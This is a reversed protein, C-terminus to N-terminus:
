FDVALSGTLRRAHNVQFAGSGSVRWAFENTLNELRLRLQAPARGIRFRYRGGLDLLTHAPVELRNDRSAVRDGDYAVALDLSLGDLFSPRYEVTSRLTTATTGVPRPGVRGLEVAEGSVRARLLVAGAVVNLREGISGAVSLEAGSHRVQGLQGFVNDADLNYYPKRVDFLGALLKLDPTLAYRIGADRQSTRAAPLAEGRNVANDPAVGTEELGRTYGGYIVARDTLHLALTAYYLWPADSTRARSSGPQDVLKAYDTKQLGVSLEGVRTWRGEYALGATRQRVRDRSRPGFEFNPEPVPDPVGIRAPGLDIEDSGDYSARRERGRAILHFAHRRPGEVFSRTLRLEGSTSASKKSPDAIIVHRATGDRQTDLFLDAFESEDVEFSRFLGAALAWGSGLEAKGFGGYLISHDREDAWRQGFFRRREIRPPLYPGAVFILPSAEEDYGDVRSWFSVLEIGAAPQWRLSAARSFFRADSGDASEDFLYSAGATLGLRDGALPLQLDLEVFPGFYDAIGAVASAIPREGAMRLKYDAIGTPAPFPYGQATLGVRITTGDVLRDTIDGAQDFYLGEIRVNGAAVPSFGRVSSSNYLGVSENGVSVGFADEAARVANDDARQASAPSVLIIAPILTLGLKILDM